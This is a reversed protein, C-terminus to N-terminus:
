IVERAAEHARMTGTATREILRPVHTRRVLWLVGLLDFVGVAGRGLNGYHSQGHLRPRDDVDVYDIRHGHARFLAPLFRHMGEFQPLRLFAAQQFLKLGCASDVCGDRLAARRVSNALISALRRSAGTSRSRRVGFVFSEDAEGRAARDLLRLLDRPDNQGDGDMTAIVSSRAAAAGSHLAASKGERRGHRLLRLCPHAPMMAEVREGSADTSGDDVVIIEKPPGPALVAIMEALVAGISAAENHVPVVISYQM